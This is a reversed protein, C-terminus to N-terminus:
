QSSVRMSRAFAPFNARSNVSIIWFSGCRLRNREDGITSSSVMSPLHEHPPDPESKTIGLPELVIQVGLRSRKSRFSIRQSCLCERKERRISSSEGFTLWIWSGRAPNTNPHLPGLQQERIQLARVLLPEAQAYKGQNWYLGALSNLSTATNPHLPGLQQECIALARQLLPEAEMYRARENLYDGAQNLLRAAEPVNMQEQAILEACLLAHPLLRDCQPWTQHEVDPFAANVARVARQAWQQREQEDMQDKLVAQVLRHM